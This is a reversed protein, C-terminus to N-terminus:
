SPPAFGMARVEARRAALRDDADVLSCDDCM